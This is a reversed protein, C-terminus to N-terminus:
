AHPEAMIMLADESSECGHEKKINNIARILRLKSDYLMVIEFSAYDDDTKRPPREKEKEEEDDDGEGGFLKDKPMLLSVLEDSSFGMLEGYDESLVSLEALLKEEDWGANTALKNDAIILARRKADDLGTVVVAPVSAMGLETAAMLRGHGAILNSSEDVLIPNTFGFEVISAKLQAVQTESHTRANNEYPIIEGVAIDITKYQEM